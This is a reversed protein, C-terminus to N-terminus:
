GHQWAKWLVTQRRHEKVHRAHVGAPVIERFTQVSGGAGENLDGADEAFDIERSEADRNGTTRELMMLNAM